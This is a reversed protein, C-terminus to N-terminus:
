NEMRERVEEWTYYYKMAVHASGKHISMIIDREDSGRAKILGTVYYLPMWRLWRYMKVYFPQNQYRDDENGSDRQKEITPTPVEVFDDVVDSNMSAHLMMRLTDILEEPSEFYGCVPETRAQGNDTSYVECLGYCDGEDFDFKIIQYNWTNMTNVVRALQKTQLANPVTAEGRAEHAM